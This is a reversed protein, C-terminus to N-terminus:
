SKTSLWSKEHLFLNELKTTSEQINYLFQELARVSFGRNKEEESFRCNQWFTSYSWGGSSSSLVITGCPFWCSLVVWFSLKTDYLRGRVKELIKVPDSFCISLRYVLPKKVRDPRRRKGDIIFQRLVLKIKKNLKWLVRGCWM